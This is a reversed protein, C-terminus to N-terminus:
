LPTLTLSYQVVVNRSADDEIEVTPADTASVRLQYDDSVWDGRYTGVGVKEIPNVLRWKEGLSTRYYDLLQEPTTGTAMYSRAVVGDKENRPGLPESRPFVPLDDFRGPELTTANPTPQAAPSDGGTGCGAVGLALIIGAAIRVATPSSAKSVVDMYYANKM